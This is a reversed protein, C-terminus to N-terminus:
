SIVIVEDNEKIDKAKIYQNNVFIKHNETCRIVHEFGNEDEITIEYMDEQNNKVGWNIIDKYEVEQKEINYSPVKIQLKNDVIEKITKYGDKTNILTDAPFCEDFLVVNADKVNDETASQVSYVTIDKKDNVGGGVLGVEEGLFKSIESQLQTCLSLKDAFVAVPKTKFKAIIGAMMFTNHTVIFDKCIYTHKPSDVAICKMESKTQLAKISNIKFFEDTVFWDYTNDEQKYLTMRRGLSQEVFQLDKALRENIIYPTNSFFGKLLLKRDDISANKYENPIYGVENLNKGYEFPSQVPTDNFVIPKCIPIFLDEKLNILEKTTKVQWEGKRLNDLTAFKWLHDKCCKISTGDNFTIEYEQLEGQPYEGIVITKCGDEDYVVDGVHIDKMPIFGNPTLIPTDLPLCKGAGTAARIIERNSCDDIIDQQYDRATFEKQINYDANQTPVIRQDNIAYEEGTDKIIELVYSLLGTYTLHTKRNYLHRVQIYEAKFEQIEYSLKEYIVNDIEKDTGLIKTYVNNVELTIM